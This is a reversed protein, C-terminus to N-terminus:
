SWPTETECETVHTALVQAGEGALAEAWAAIGEDGRAHIQTVLDYPPPTPGMPQARNQLCWAPERTADLLRPLAEAEYRKVFTASEEGEPARVLVAACLGAERDEAGHVRHEEVVFFGNKARDMFTAEDALIRAGQDTGLREMLAAAAEASPYQFATMVDFGPEGFIEQAVHYRVYRSTGEMVTEMALPAHIEEYHARFAERTHDPRRVILALTKM